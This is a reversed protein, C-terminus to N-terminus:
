IRELIIKFSIYYRLNSDSQRYEINPQQPWFGGSSAQYPPPAPVSPQQPVVSSGSTMAPSSALQSSDQLQPPGPPMGYPRQQQPHHYSHLPVPPYRPGGSYHPPPYGSEQHHWINSQGGPPGMMHPPQQQTAQHHYMGPPQNGTQLAQQSPISPPPYNGAGQVAYAPSGPPRMHPPPYSGSPIPHMQSQPHQSHHQPTHPHPPPHGIHHQQMGIHYYGPLQQVHPHAHYGPPPPPQNADVLMGPHHQVPYESPLFSTPPRSPQPLMAPDGSTQTSLSGSSSQDENIPANSSASASLAAKKEKSTQKKKKSTVASSSTSSTSSTSSASSTKKTTVLPVQSVSSPPPEKPFSSSPKASIIQQSQQPVPPIINPAFHSSIQQQTQPPYQPPPPYHHQTHSQHQPIYGGHQSYQQMVQTQNGPQQGQPIPPPYMQCPQVGPPHGHPVSRPPGPPPAYGSPLHGPAVPIINHPIQPQVTHPHITGTNSPPNSPLGPQQMPRSHIEHSGEHVPQIAEGNEPCPRQNEEEKLAQHQAHPPHLQQQARQQQLAHQQRRREVEAMIEAERQQRQQARKHRAEIEALQRERREEEERHMDCKARIIMEGFQAETIIPCFSVLKEYDIIYKESEEKMRRIKSQHRAECNDIEQSLNRKHNKLQEVQMRLTNLRTETIFQGPDPLRSDSLIELMLRHNRQFRAAAVHKATFQDEPDEENDELIYSERLDNQQGDPRERARPAVQKREQEQEEINKEAREKAALWSQYSPSNHYQRLAETYQAKESEYEEVFLSKEDEPLERWMQGIIKGVEWLKSQPNSNKVQEWVKRSYRMYPMLPKEPPKPPKPVRSDSKSGVKVPPFSTNGHSPQM